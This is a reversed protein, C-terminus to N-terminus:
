YIWYKKQPRAGVFIRRDQRSSPHASNAYRQTQGLREYLKETDPNTDTTITVIEVKDGLVGSITGFARNLMKCPPCWTATIDILITKGSRLIRNMNKLTLETHSEMYEGIRRQRGQPSLDAHRDFLKQM